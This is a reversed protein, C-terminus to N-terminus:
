TKMFNRMCLKNASVARKLQQQVVNPRGVGCVSETGVPVEVSISGPFYGCIVGLVMGKLGVQHKPFLDIPLQSFKIM